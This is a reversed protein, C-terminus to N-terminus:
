KYIRQLINNNFNNTIKICMWHEIEDTNTNFGVFIKGLKSSCLNQLRIERCCKWAKQAKGTQYGKTLRAM